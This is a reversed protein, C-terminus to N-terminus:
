SVEVFEDLSIDPNNPRDQGIQPNELTSQPNDVYVISSTAFPSLNQSYTNVPDTRKGDRYFIVEIPSGLLGYPNSKDEKFRTDLAPELLDSFQGYKDCRYIATTPKGSDLSVDTFRIHQDFRQLSGTTGLTGDSFKGIVRRDGSIGSDFRTDWGTIGYGGAVTQEKRSGIYSFENEVQYQDVVFESELAEHIADTVLPQNKSNDESVGTRVMSGYLVIRAEGAKITLQSGTIYCVSDGIQNGPTNQEVLPEGIGADFGFILEDDPFLLYPSVTSNTVAVAGIAKGVISENGGLSRFTRSDFFQIQLDSNTTTLATPDVQLFTQPVGGSGTYAYSASVGSKGTFGSSLEFFPRTTTGGPWYGQLSSETPNGVTGAIKQSNPIVTTPGLVQIPSVAPTLEMRVSSTLSAVYPYSTIDVGPNVGFNLAVSPGWVRSPNWNTINSYGTTTDVSIRNNYTCISGSLVIYRSSGSVDALTDVGSQGTKQQRYMFFTFNNGRWMGARSTQSASALSATPWIRQAEIPLEVVAKELLIPANIYDSMKITQSSTAHYTTKFPAMSTITPVGTKSMSSISTPNLASNATSQSTQGGPPKFQSPFNNTGSVIYAQETDAGYDAVEVAYDYHIPQGTAPDTLGIQDWKKTDFNYYCFGTFEQGAYKGSPDLSDFSLPKRMLIRDEDASIDIPIQIKSGLPSTFGPLESELTGTLYFGSSGLYIISDNFPKIEQLDSSDHWQFSHNNFNTISPGATLIIDPGDNPTALLQQVFESGSPLGAGAVIQQSIINIERDDKFPNTFRGSYDQDGTRGLTPYTIKEDDTQRIVVRHPLGTYGTEKSM